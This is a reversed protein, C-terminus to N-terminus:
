LVPTAQIESFASSDFFRSIGIRIHRHAASGAPKPAHNDKELHSIGIEANQVRQVALELIQVKM